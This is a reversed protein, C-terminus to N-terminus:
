CLLHTVTADLSGDKMDYGFCTVHGSQFAFVLLIYYFGAVFQGVPCKKHVPEGQGTESVLVFSNIM